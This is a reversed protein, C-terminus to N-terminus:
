TQIIRSKEKGLPFAKKPLGVFIQKLSEYLEEASNTGASALIDTTIKAHKQSWKGTLEELFKMKKKNEV